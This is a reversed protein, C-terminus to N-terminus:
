FPTDDGENVDQLTPKIKPLISNKVYDELYDMRETDDWIDVGRVKKKVMPPLDRPNDKTWFHKLGKGNQSIFLVSQKKDGDVILKPSLTIVESLTANPIAKLFSTAYGSSYKMELNYSGQEDKLVLVWSKGYESEKTKIDTLWGSLSDYFEEHVERGMKNVRSVSKDTPASFQRVLKGNTISLFVGKSQSQNLGM